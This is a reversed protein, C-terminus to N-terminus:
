VAQGGHEPPEGSLDCAQKSGGHDTGAVPSRVEDPVEVILLRACDGPHDVPVRRAEGMHLDTERARTHRSVSLLSQGVGFDVRDDHGRRDLGM